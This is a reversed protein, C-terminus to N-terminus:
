CLKKELNDHSGHAVLHRNSIKPHVKPCQPVFQVMADNWQIQMSRASPCQTTTTTTGEKSRFWLSERELGLNSTHIASFIHCIVSLFLFMKQLVITCFNNFIWFIWTYYTKNSPNLSLLRRYWLGKYCERVNLGRIRSTVIYTLSM